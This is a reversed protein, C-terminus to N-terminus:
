FTPFKYRSDDNNCPKDNDTEKTSMIDGDGDGDSKLDKDEEVESKISIKIEDDSNNFISLPGGPKHDESEPEEIATISIDAEQPLDSEIVPVLKDVKRKIDDISMKLDMDNTKKMERKEKEKSFQKISENEILLFEMEMRETRDM